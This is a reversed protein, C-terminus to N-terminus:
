KVYKNESRYLKNLAAIDEKTINRVKLNNSTSMLINDNEMPVIGLAEGVAKLTLARVKDSGYKKGKEDVTAVTIKAKYFFGNNRYYESNGLVPWKRDVSYGKEGLSNNTIGISINCINETNPSTKYLFRVTNGSASQWEQFASQAVTGSGKSIYVSIPMKLWRPNGYAFSAGAFVLMSILILLFKKGMYM